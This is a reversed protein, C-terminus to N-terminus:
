AVALVEDSNLATSLQIYGLSSNLTYESSSLLRASEVKEYDKGGEFDYASLPDLATTVQRIYRANPYDNRIENMLTNSTNSPNEQTPDGTWHSNSIHSAEGVDEFAVINRAESYDSRKNTVWVEIRTSSIGRPVLPLKSRWTDYNDRFFHSLFYSRNQDYNDCTIYFSTTQSGGKSNVTQTESNQQSVLATATLKGFQLKTKIGFLAASGTILSSGTTM